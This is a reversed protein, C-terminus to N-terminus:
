NGWDGGFFYSVEHTFIKRSESETLGESYGADLVM